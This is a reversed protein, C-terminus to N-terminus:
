YQVDLTAWKTATPFEELTGLEAKGDVLLWVRMRQSPLTSLPQWDM